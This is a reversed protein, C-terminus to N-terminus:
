PAAMEPGARTSRGGAILGLPQGRHPPRPWARGPREAGGARRDRPARQFRPALEEVHTPRPQESLLGRITTIRQPLSKPLTPRRAGATVASPVHTIDLKGQESAVIRRAAPAQYDPRLWRVLGKAQEARREKNLEVLRALDIGTSDMKSPAPKRRM